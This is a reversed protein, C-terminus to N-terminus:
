HKTSSLVFSILKILLRYISSRKKLQNWVCYIKPTYWFHLLILTSIYFFFTVKKECRQFVNSSNLTKNNNKLKKIVTCLCFPKCLQIKGLNYIFIKKKILFSLKGVYGDGDLLICLITNWVICHHFKVVKSILLLIKSM